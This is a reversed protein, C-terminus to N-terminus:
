LYTYEAVMYFLRILCWLCLGGLVQLLILATVDAEKSKRHVLMLLEFHLILLGDVVYLPWVLPPPSDASPWKYVRCSDGAAFFVFFM